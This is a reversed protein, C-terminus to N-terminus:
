VMLQYSDLVFFVYCIAEYLDCEEISLDFILAYKKPEGLM